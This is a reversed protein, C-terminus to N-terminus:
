LNNGPQGSLWIEFSCVLNNGAVICLSGLHFCQQQTQSFRHIGAATHRCIRLLLIEGFDSILPGVSGEIDGAHIWTDGPCIQDAPGIYQAELSGLPTLKRTKGQSPPVWHPFYGILWPCKIECINSLRLHHTYLKGCSTSLSLIAENSGTVTTVGTWVYIHNDQNGCDWPSSRKGSPWSWARKTQYIKIQLRILKQNPLM